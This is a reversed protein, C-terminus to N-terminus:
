QGWMGDIEEKTMARGPGKSLALLEEHLEVAVERLPRKPLHELRFDLADRVADTLTTKRLRALKEAKSRVDPDRIQLNVM